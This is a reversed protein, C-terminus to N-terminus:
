PNGCRNGLYTEISLGLKKKIDSWLHESSTLDIRNQSWKDQYKEQYCEQCLDMVLKAVQRKSLAIVYAKCLYAQM